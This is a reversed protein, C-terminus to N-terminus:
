ISEFHNSDNKRFLRSSDLNKPKFTKEPIKANKSSYLWFTLFIVLKSFVLNIWNDKVSNVINYRQCQNM